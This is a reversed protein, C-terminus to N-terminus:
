VPKPETCPSAEGNPAKKGQGCPTTQPVNSAYAVSILIRARRSRSGLLIARVLYAFTPASSDFSPVLKTSLSLFQVSRSASGFNLTYPICDLSKSLTTALERPLLMFVFGITNVSASNRSNNNRRKYFFTCAAGQV